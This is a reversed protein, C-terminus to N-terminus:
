GFCGQLSTDKIKEEARWYLQCAFNAKYPRWRLYKSTAHEEYKLEPIQHLARRHQITWKEISIAEQLLDQELSARVVCGELHCALGSLVLLEKFTLRRM